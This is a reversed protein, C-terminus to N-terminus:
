AHSKKLTSTIPTNPHFLDRSIENIRHISKEAFRLIQCV